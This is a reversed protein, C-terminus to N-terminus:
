FILRELLMHLMNKNPPFENVNPGSPNSVVHARKMSSEMIKAGLMCQRSCRQCIIHSQCISSAIIYGVPKFILRIVYVSWQTITNMYDAYVLMRDNSFVIHNTSDKNNLTLAQKSALLAVCINQAYLSIFADCM